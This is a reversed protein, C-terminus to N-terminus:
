LYAHFYKFFPKKLLPTRDYLEAALTRSLQELFDRDTLPVKSEAYNVQLLINILRTTDELSLSTVAALREPFDEESGNCDRLLQSDHLMRLIRDFLRRCSMTSLSALVRKRRILLFLVIGAFALLVIATVILFINNSLDTLGGDAGGNGTDDTSNDDGRFTWHHRDMISRMVTYNYGPYSANMTGETTPTVEVPVWGYDKLFIEVWAHASKDTLTCSYYGEYQDNPTFDAATAVYGTVYRASRFLM